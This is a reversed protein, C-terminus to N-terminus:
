PETTVKKKKYFALFLSTWKSRETFNVFFKSRAKRLAETKIHTMESPSHRLDQLHTIKILIFYLMVWQFSYNKFGFFQKKWQTRELSIVM